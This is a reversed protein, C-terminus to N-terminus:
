FLTNRPCFLCVDLLLAAGGISGFSILPSLSNGWYLNVNRQGVKMDLKLGLVQQIIFIVLEGRPSPVTVSHYTEGPGEGLVSESM